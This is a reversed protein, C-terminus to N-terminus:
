ARSFGVIPSIFGKAKTKKSNCFAYKILPFHILFIFIM